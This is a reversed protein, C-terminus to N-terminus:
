EEAMKGNNGDIDQIWLAGFSIKKGTPAIGQFDGKHTGTCIVRAVLQNGGAIMEEIHLHM